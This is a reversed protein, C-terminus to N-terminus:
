EVDAVIVPEKEETEEESTEEKCEECNCEECEEDFDEETCDCCDCVFRSKLYSYLKYGAYVIGALAALGAILKVVLAIVDNSDYKKRNYM